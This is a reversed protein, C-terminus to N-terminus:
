ARPVFGRKVDQLYPFSHKVLYSRLPAKYFSNKIVCDLSLFEQVLHKDLFPYRTEIGFAGAVYEEKLLYSQQTSGYFSPWPFISALDSPFVGCFNSHDYIPRGLLAYDSMIEDAGQGSLCIKRGESIARSCIAALGVSAGDEIYSPSYCYDELRSSTIYYKGPEGNQTLFQHFHWREEESLELAESSAEQNIIARRSDIVSMEENNYFSYTKFATKQRLLECAIAGSDYGSSLCLFIKERLNWVRKHIASEFAADWDDLDVKHQNTNFKWLPRQIFVRQSDRNIVVLCNAPVRAVSTFGLGTLASSYSAIGIGNNNVAFHLPKTAFPDTALLFNRRRPDYICISFEGDLHNAFQDGHADYADLISEGDSRYDGFTRSNYIEGNFLCVNDHKQLPQPTFDGTISLLNHIYTTGDQILQSTLDPGRRAQLSNAASIFEENYPLTTLLFSCM